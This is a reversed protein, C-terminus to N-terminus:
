LDSNDISVPADPNDIAGYPEADMEFLVGDLGAYANTSDANTLFLADAGNGECSLAHVFVTADGLALSQFGEAEPLQEMLADFPGVEYSKSLGEYDCQFFPGEAYGKYFHQVEGILTEAEENSLASIAGMTFSSVRWDQDLQPYQEASNDEAFVSGVSTLLFISAVVVSRM